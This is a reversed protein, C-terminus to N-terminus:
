LINMILTNLLIIYKNGCLRKRITSIFAPSVGLYSAIYYQPVRAPVSPYMKIFELYRETASKLIMNVLRNQFVSLNRQVLLRFSRELKPIKAFLKEKTELTFVYMETDELTEITFDSISKEYFSCIDTIWCDEIAFSLTVECGSQDMYYVRACGKKIFGEFQCIDGEHHIITKKPIMRLELVSEFFRKEDTTLSTFRSINNLIMDDM